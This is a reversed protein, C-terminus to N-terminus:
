AHNNDSAKKRLVTRLDPGNFDLPVCMEALRSAIREGNTNGHKNHHHMLQGPPLNSTVVTPLNSRYRWDILLFLKEGVWASPVEAGIDDLVLLPADKAASFEDEYSVASNDAYSERLRDLLDATLLYRGARAEDIWANLIAAALSSKGTGFNGHLYLGYCTLGDHELKGGADIFQRALALSERQVDTLALCDFSSLTKDALRSHLGCQGRFRTARATKFEQGAYCDCYHYRDHEDHFWGVGQCLECEYKMSENREGDETRVRNERYASELGTSLRKAISDISQWSNSLPTKSDSPM